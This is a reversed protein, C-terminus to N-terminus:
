APSPANRAGHRLEVVFAALSDGPCSTAIGGVGLWERHDFQLLGRRYTGFATVYILAAVAARAAPTVTGDGILAVGLTVRNAVNHTSTAHAGVWRPDRGPLIVGALPGSTVIGANYPHDGYLDKSPLEGLMALQQIQKWKGLPDTTPEGTRHWTIGVVTDTRSSLRHTNPTFLGAQQRTYFRPKPVASM